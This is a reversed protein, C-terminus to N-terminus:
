SKQEYIAREKMNAIRASIIRIVGNRETFVVTLLRGKYSMGLGIYRRETDSHKKDSSRIFKPDFFTNAAEDFEVGHKLANKQAKELHWEFNGVHEM